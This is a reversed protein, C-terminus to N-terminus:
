KSLLLFDLVGTCSSLRVCVCLCAYFVNQFVCTICLTMFLIHVAMLKFVVDYERCDYVLKFFCQFATFIYVCAIMCCCHDCSFCCRDIPIVLRVHM